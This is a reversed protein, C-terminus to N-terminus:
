GSYVTIHSEDKIESRMTQLKPLLKRVDEQANALESKKQELFDLLREPPTAEYQRVGNRIVFSVLGKAHLKALVDYVKSSALQAKKIVMGANSVGLHALIEYVEAEGATLGIKELIEKM